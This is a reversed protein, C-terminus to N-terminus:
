KKGGMLDRLLAQGLLDMLKGVEMASVATDVAREYIATRNPSAKSGVVKKILVAAKSTAPKKRRKVWVKKQIDSMRKKGEATKMWHIKETM